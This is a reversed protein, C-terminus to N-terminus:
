SPEAPPLSLVLEHGRAPDLQLGTAIGLRHALALAVGFSSALENQSSGSLLAMRLSTKEGRDETTVKLTSRPAAISLLSDAFLHLMRRLHLKSTQTYPSVAPEAMEITVDAAKARAELKRAIDRLLPTLAVRESEVDDYSAVGCLDKALSVRELLATAGSRIDNALSSLNSQAGNSEASVALLEANGMILSLPERIEAGLSMLFSRNLEAAQAEQNLKLLEDGKLKLEDSRSLAKEVATLIQEPEAPKRVYDHVGARLSSVATEYDQDSTMLLAILDPMTQRLSGLLEIGNMGAGIRYDLIAVDPQAEHCHALAADASYVAAASHGSLALLECVSDALDAHDDVILIRPNM